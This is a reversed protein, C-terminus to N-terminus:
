HGHGTELSGVPAQLLDHVGHQGEGRISAQWLRATDGTTATAAPAVTQRLHHGPLHPGARGRHGHGYIRLAQGEHVPNYGARQAASKQATGWDAALLQLIETWSVVFGRKIDVYLGGNQFQYIYRVIDATHAPQKLRDLLATGFKGALNRLTARLTLDDCFVRRFEPFMKAALQAAEPKNDHVYTQFLIKPVPEMQLHPQHYFRLSWPGRGLQTTVEALERFTRCRAMSQARLMEIHVDQQLANWGAVVLIPFGPTKRM